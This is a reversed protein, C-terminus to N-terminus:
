FSGPTPSTIDPGLRRPKTAAPPKQADKGGGSQSTSQGRRGEASSAHDAASQLIVKVNVSHWRRAADLGLCVPLCRVVRSALTEKGTRSNEWPGSRGWPSFTSRVVFRSKIAGVVSALIQTQCGVIKRRVYLRSPFAPVVALEDGAQGGLV